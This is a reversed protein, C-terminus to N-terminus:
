GRQESLVHRDLEVVDGDATRLGRGTVEIMWRGDSPRVRVLNYRALPEGKHHRGASGSAIGVVPIAGKPGDCWVLTDRHNHGHLVLEAGRRQLIAQVGDADRLARLQPAQGPLPPHHILVVRAAGCGALEGLVRDLAALQDHGVRGAAVFPRTEVASNVGILAVCGIRRVFPFGRGAGGAAAIGTGFADSCMYDRWLEVGPHHRMKTYIDHNGPVVSVSQPSGIGDLWNRAAHYESPLGINCLDGTVAIHHPQMARMDALLREVIDVRHVHKRSKHWNLLGLARKMNLQRPSIGVLPTLHPDSIHAITTTDPM